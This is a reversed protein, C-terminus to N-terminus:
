LRSTIERPLKMKDVLSKAREAAKTFIKEQRDSDFTYKITQIVKEATNLSPYAVDEGFLKTVVEQPEDVVENPLDICVDPYEEEFEEYTMTTLNKLYGTGRKKKRRHQYIRRLGVNLDLTYGARVVLQGDDYKFYCEGEKGDDDYTAAVAMLLINRPAGKYDSNWLNPAYYAFRAWEINPVFMLDVQHLQGGVDIAYSGVGLGPMLVAQTTLKFSLLAHVKDMPHKNVDVALDVDNSLDVKGTSGVPVLDELPIESLESICEIASKVKAKPVPVTGFKATARGGM